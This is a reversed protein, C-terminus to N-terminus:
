PIWSPLITDVRGRERENYNIILWEHMPAWHRCLIDLQDWACAYKVFGAFIDLVSATYDVPPLSPGKTRRALNQVGFIIERPDGADFATLNPVLYDLKQSPQREGQNYEELLESGLRYLVNAGYAELEELSAPQLVAIKHIELGPVQLDRMILRALAIDFTDINHSKKTYYTAANSAFFIEQIIWRRAFWPCCMLNLFSDVKTKTRDVKTISGALQDQVMEQILEMSLDSSGTGDGLWIVVKLATRYIEPMRLLQRSKEENDKQNISLTDIWLVGHYRAHWYKTWDM